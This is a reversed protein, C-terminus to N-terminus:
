QERHINIKLKAASFGVLVRALYMFACVRVIIHYMCAM